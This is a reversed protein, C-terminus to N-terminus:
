TAPADTTESVAPADTTEAQQEVPKPLYATFRVTGVWKDDSVCTFTFTFKPVSFTDSKKTEMTLVLEDVLGAVAKSVADDFEAPACAIECGLAYMEMSSNDDGSKMGRNKFEREVADSMKEIAVQEDIVATTSM